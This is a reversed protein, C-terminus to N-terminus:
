AKVAYNNDTGAQAQSSANVPSAAFERWDQTKPIVSQFACVEAPIAHEGTGIAPAGQAVAHVAEVMQKRFEVVAMDSAGLRDKTRDAIPGMTVWM